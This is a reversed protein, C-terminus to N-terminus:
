EQALNKLDYKEVTAKELAGNEQPILTPDALSSLAGFSRGRADSSTFHLLLWDFAETSELWENPNQAILIKARVITQINKSKEGKANCLKVQDLYAADWDVSLLTARSMDSEM